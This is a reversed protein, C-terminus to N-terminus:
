ITHTHTVSAASGALPQQTCICGKNTQTYIQHQVCASIRGDGVVVMDISQTRRSERTATRCISM